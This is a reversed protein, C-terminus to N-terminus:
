MEYILTECEYRVLCVSLYARMVRLHYAEYELGIGIVHPVHIELLKNERIDFAIIM